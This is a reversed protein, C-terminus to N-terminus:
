CLRAAETKLQQLLLQHGKHVGDFTGVTVILKNQEGQSM